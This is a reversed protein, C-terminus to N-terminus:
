GIIPATPFGFTADTTEGVSGIVSYRVWVEVYTVVINSPFDVM